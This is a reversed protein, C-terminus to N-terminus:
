FFFSQNMGENFYKCWGLACADVQVIRSMARLLKLGIYMNTTQAQVGHKFAYLLCVHVDRLKKTNYSCICSILHVHQVSTVTDVYGTLLNQLSVDWQVFRFSYCINNTCFAVMMGTFPFRVCVWVHVSLQPVIEPSFM